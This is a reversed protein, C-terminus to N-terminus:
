QHNSRGGMHRLLVHRAKRLASPGMSREFRVFILRIEGASARGRLTEHACTTSKGSGTKDRESREVLRM